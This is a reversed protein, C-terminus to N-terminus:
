YKSWWKSPLGIGLRVNLDRKAARLGAERRKRKRLMSKWHNQVCNDTRGPRPAAISVRRNGSKTHAEHLIREEEPSWPDRRIGSKFQNLYRECCIKGTRNTMHSAVRSWTKFASLSPPGATERHVLEVLRSDEEPSWSASRRSWSRRPHPPVSGNSGPASPSHVNIATLAAETSSQPAPSGHSFSVPRQTHASVPM